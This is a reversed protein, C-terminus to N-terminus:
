RVLISTTLRLAAATRAADIRATTARCPVDCAVDNVVVSGAPSEEPPVLGTSSTVETVWLSVLLAESGVHENEAHM